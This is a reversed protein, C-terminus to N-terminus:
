FFEDIQTEIDEDPNEELFDPNDPIQRSTVAHNIYTVRFSVSDNITIFNNNKGTIKIDFDQQSDIKMDLSYKEALRNVFLKKDTRNLPGATSVSNSVFIFYEKYFHFQLLFNFKGVIHRYFLVKYNNIAEFEQIIFDPKDFTNLVWREDIENLDRNKYKITETTSFKLKPKTDTIAVFEKLNHVLNERDYYSFGRM